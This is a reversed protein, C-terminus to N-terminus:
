TAPVALREIWAKWAPRERAVYDAAGESFLYGELQVMVRDDGMDHVAFQLFAPLPAVIRLLLEHLGPPEGIRVVKGTIGRADVPDGVAGAGLAGRLASFLAADTGPMQADVSLSTVQQGPFETLYLRLNDFFPMWGKEMEDFFEREWDAGTGFASSVVRVVCTGGSRTEVLFETVLPSVVAGEQGGLVAWDPEEYVLRRPPEWGTVTGESSSEGMHFVVRGGTHEDLETPIFWGSIGNATAIADWVQEASGPVEVTIDLRLPVDPTTM